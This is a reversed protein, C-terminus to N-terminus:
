GNDKHHIQSEAKLGGRTEAPMCSFAMFVAWHSSSFQLCEDMDNADDLPLVFNLTSFFM